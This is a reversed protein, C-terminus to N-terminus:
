TGLGLKEFFAANRKKADDILKAFSIIEVYVGLQANYGFYGLGDPTQTLAAYVAQKELKPMVDCVIYAYFPTTSPIKIPRGLRDKAKGSRILDVYGYVQQIPNKEEKENYDDRAPRKFEVIVISGFTPSSDVFAFPHGFIALDPRERSDVEVAENMQNLPKDSALYFHFALKEDLIWLNMQDSRVEDSTTKLPFIIEHVAEERAYTGDDQIALRHELFALTAKRHAVHRALKAMGAENWEELFREFRKRQEQHSLTASDGSALLRDYRVRLEAEHKQDIKYLELDLKEDSLNSPIQDLLKKSQKLLHRYQPAKMLIYQRIRETKADNLPDIHRALFKKTKPLTAEILESWSIEDPFEIEAPEDSIDFQTRESMVNEDLFEGSIYGAYVFEQGSKEDPIVPDLYPALKVLSESRVTRGHACFNLSHQQAHAAALRVHNLRFKNGRVSFPQTKSELRMESNFRRNLDLRTDEVEDFLTMSPCRKLIFLELFHEIIHTAITSASKPCHRQYESHFGCLNVETWPTTDTSDTTAPEPPDIGNTSLCFSFERQKLAGNSRFVSRIEARQFAKLWLFRGVGKGGFAIKETTDSTGFSHFHQDTFGIGNDRVVFGKVPFSTPDADVLTQQLTDRVVSVIIEGDEGSEEQIAHISNMIAEFLPQLCRRRGLKINSVRGRVDVDM